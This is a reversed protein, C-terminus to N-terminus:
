ERTGSAAAVPERRFLVSYAPRVLWGPLLRFSGRLVLNRVFLVPGIVGTSRLRRQMALEHKLMQRGARRSVMGDGANFLVLPEAINEARAGAVLLRAMLDYDEHYPVDVYGGVRVALERRFVVSPNNMPNNVKLRANIGEQTEPASRLGVVHDPSGEFELLASGVLDLSHEDVLQMQRELRHPLSIDDSDQRAVFDGTARALGAQSALGSGVNEPLWEVEVGHGGDRAARIAADLDDPVPGDVVILFQDPSRTQGLISAVSREFDAASTGRYTTM